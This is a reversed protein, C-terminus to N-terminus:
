HGFSRTSLDPGAATEGRQAVRFAFSRAEDLQPTRDTQAMDISEASLMGQASGAREGLYEMAITATERATSFLGASGEVGGLAWANQDHVEGRIVGNRFGSYAEAAPGALKREYECSDETAAVRPLWARPPNFGTSSLRLPELISQALLGELRLTAARRL